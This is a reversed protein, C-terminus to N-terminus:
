RYSSKLTEFVRTIVETTMATATFSPKLTLKPFLAATWALSGAM